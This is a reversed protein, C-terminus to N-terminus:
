IKAKKEFYGHDFENSDMYAQYRGRMKLYSENVEDRKEKAKELKRDAVKIYQFRLKLERRIDWYEQSLGYKSYDTKLGRCDLCEVKVDPGDIGCTDCTRWRSADTYKQKKKISRKKEAPHDSTDPKRKVGSVAAAAAAVPTTKSALRDFVSSAM